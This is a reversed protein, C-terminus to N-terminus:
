IVSPLGTVTLGADTAVSFFHNLELLPCTKIDLTKVLLYVHDDPECYYM